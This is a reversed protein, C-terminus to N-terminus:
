VYCCMAIVAKLSRTNLLELLKHSEISNALNLDM